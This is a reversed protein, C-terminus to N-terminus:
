ESCSVEKTREEFYAVMAAIEPDLEKRGDTDAAAKAAAESVSMRRLDQRYKILSKRDNDKLDPDIGHDIPLSHEKAVDSSNGNKTKAVSNRRKSLAEEIVGRGGSLKLAVERREEESVEVIDSRALAPSVNEVDGQPPGVMPARGRPRYGAPAPSATPASGKGSDLGLDRKKVKKKKKHRAALPSKM